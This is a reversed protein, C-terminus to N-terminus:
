NLVLVPNVHETLISKRCPLKPGVTKLVKRGIAEAKPTAVALMFIKGGAKIIAAKGAAKGFSLQMGTSMRDAGAGTLMKNERQIHHPYPFIRFFYQGPILTDLQKNIYQRCAEIAYNRVQCDELSVVTLKIPFKGEEFAAQNGMTFKTIKHPPVAKIFAKGKVRSVRTYPVAHRRSYSAAKRVAM